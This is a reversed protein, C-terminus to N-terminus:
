NYQVRRQLIHVIFLTSGITNKLCLNICILSFKGSMFICYKQIFCEKLTSIDQVFTRKNIEIVCKVEDFQNWFPYMLDSFMRLGCHPVYSNSQCHHSLSAISYM